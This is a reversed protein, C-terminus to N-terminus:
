DVTRNNRVITTAGPDQRIFNQGSGLVINDEIAGAAPSRIVFGIYGATGCGSFRNQTVIATTTGTYAVCTHTVSSVRNNRFQIAGEGTALANHAGTVVNNTVLATPSGLGDWTRFADGAINTLTNGRITGGGRILIGGLSNSITSGEILGANTLESQDTLDSEIAWGRINTLTVSRVTAAGAALLAARNLEGAGDADVIHVGEVISGDGTSTAVAHHNQHRRVTLNSLEAREDMSIISVSVETLGNADADQIITQDPSGALHVGHPVWLHDTTYVGPTVYVTTGEVARALAEEISNTDADEGSGVTWTKPSANALRTYVRRTLRGTVPMNNAAEFARIGETLSETTMEADAHGTAFGARQLHRWANYESPTSLPITATLNASIWVSGAVAALAAGTLATRGVISPPNSTVQRRLPTVYAALILAQAMALIVFHLIVWPIQLLSSLGGLLLFPSLGARTALVLAIAAITAVLLGIDGLAAIAFILMARRKSLRAAGRPWLRRTMWAGLFAIMPFVVIGFTFAGGVTVGNYVGPDGALGLYVLWGINLVLTALLSWRAFGHVRPTQEIQARIHDDVPAVRSARTHPPRPGQALLRQREDRLRQAENDGARAIREDWIAVALPDASWENAWRWLRDAAGDCELYAGLGPRGIKRGISDVVKRWGPHRADGTFGDLRETHILNFPPYLECPRLFASVLVDRAKGISAEARVWDSAIAGPSWMVLVCRATRVERNIEEDFSSGPDLSADFWVDLMLARLARAVAEVDTREERKYSIFVDAM